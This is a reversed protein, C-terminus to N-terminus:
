SVLFAGLFILIAAVVKQFITQKSIEEKLIHPLFHSLLVTVILVFFPQVASLANVLTVPGLSTAITFIFLAIIALTESASIALVVRAGHKGVTTILDKISLYCIPIAALFTAFRLYAFITWYDAMNLLYKAIVQYIASAVLCILMYLSSKGLSIDKKLTILISGFVLLFIGLYKIPTFIEGLFIAALILIFLPGINFLPVIRSVEEISLAKFYFVMSVVSLIGGVLVLLLAQMSLPAIKHTSFIIVSALLYLIAIINIPILPNKVWKELLFKDILNSMSWLLAALLSLTIWDM